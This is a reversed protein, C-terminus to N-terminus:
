CIIMNLAALFNLVERRDRIRLDVFMVDNM